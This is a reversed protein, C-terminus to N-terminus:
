PLANIKCQFNQQTLCKKKSLLMVRSRIRLGKIKAGRTLDSHFLFELVVFGKKGIKKEETEELPFHVLQRM